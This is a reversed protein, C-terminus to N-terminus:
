KKRRQFIAWNDTTRGFMDTKTGTKRAYFSGKGYRKRLDRAEKLAPIRSDILHYLMKIGKAMKEGRGISAGVNAM